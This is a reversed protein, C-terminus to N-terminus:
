TDATQGIALEGQEDATRGGLWFVIEESLDFPADVFAAGGVPDFKFTVVDNGAIRSIARIDIAHATWSANNQGDSQGM